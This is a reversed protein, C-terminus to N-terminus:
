ICLGQERYDEFAKDLWPMVYKIFNNLFLKSNKLVTLINIDKFCQHKKIIVLQGHLDVLRHIKLMIENRQEERADRYSGFKELFKFNNV